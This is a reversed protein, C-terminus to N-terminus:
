ELSRRAVETECGPPFLTQEECYPCVYYARELRSDGELGHIGWGCYGEFEMAEGCQGCKPAEVQVGTDRGNVLQEITKGMLERRRKRVETEIEGFSAQPHADYWDEMQEYMRKAEEMFAAQRRARSQPRSM